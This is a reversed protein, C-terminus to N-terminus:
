CCQRRKKRGCGNAHDIRDSFRDELTMRYAIIERPTIRILGVFAKIEGYCLPGSKRQCPLPALRWLRRTSIGSIVVKLARHDIISSKASIAGCRILPMSILVASNILHIAPTVLAAFDDYCTHFSAGRTRIVSRILPLRVVTCNTEQCYSAIIAAVKQVGHRSRQAM